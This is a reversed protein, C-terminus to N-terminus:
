IVDYFFFQFKSFLTHLCVLPQTVQAFGDLRFVSWNLRRKKFFFLFVWFVNAIFFIRLFVFFCVIILTDSNTIKKVNPKRHHFNFIKISLKEWTEGFRNQRIKLISNFIAMWCNFPKSFYEIAILKIRFWLKVQSNM